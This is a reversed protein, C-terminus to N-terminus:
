EKKDLSKKYTCYELFLMEILVFFLSVTEYQLHTNVDLISTNIYLNEDSIKALDNNKMRTISIIPVGKVRFLKGIQVMSEAEGSVSILIMLDDPTVKNSMIKAETEGQIDFFYKGNLGFIRKMEMAVNQQLAGSSYVFVNKSGHILSCINTFDKQKFDGIFKTIDNNIIESYNLDTDICEENEWKLYVKLESYGKLSIKQAFRLITTRSVNCKAAIQDITLFMCEKKNKVIYNWIYIDNENLKGYYKNVLEDLKM